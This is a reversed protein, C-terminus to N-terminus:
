APSRGAHIGTAAGQESAWSDLVDELVVLPLCGQELIAEHFDTLDFAAGLRGRVRERLERFKLFGMRYALSQGPMDTSYRLLESAVQEGSELTNALMYKQAQELSWGYFNLGTDVVLRQAVFRQHALWGYLDYPDDYLGAEEALGASYEAWGENFASFAFTRRRLAPLAENEGQRTIAVHHGPILEHYMLPAANLQLRDPIGKGSYYYIGDAGPMAPPEYYGFTMGAELAPALREIRAHAHPARRVLRNFVPAMRALHRDYIAKLAEPTAAKARPDRRLQEHFATEGGDHGFSEIRLKEMAAALREVEAVGTRHIAEPEADFSLHYHIWDRYAAEGDPQHCIGTAEPAADVYDTDITELLQAFAPRLRMEVWSALRSRTAPPADRRDGITSEAAAAIGAITERVGPIAPRPIRWGRRAQAVLRERLCVIADAYGDALGLYRAAETPDTVDIPPFLVSLGVSFGSMSYPTVGFGTWWRDPECSEDELWYRLHAATARDTSGLSGPDIRGLRELRGRAASAVAHSEALDGRPFHTPRLGAATATYWDREVLAQWVEEALAHLEAAPHRSSSEGTM